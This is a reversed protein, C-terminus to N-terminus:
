IHLRRFGSGESDKVTRIDLFYVMSLSSVINDIILLKSRFSRSM